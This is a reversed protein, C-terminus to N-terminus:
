PECAREVLTTFETMESQNATPVHRIRPHYYFVCPMGREDYFGSERPLHMIVLKGLVLAAGLETHTGRGGPLMVIVRDAAVVGGLELQSIKAFNAEPDLHMTWDYTIEHGRAQLLDRVVRVNGVNHVSSAIYFKM